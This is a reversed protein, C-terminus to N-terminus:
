GGFFNVAVVALPITIVCLVTSLAVIAGAEEVGVNYVSAMIPTTLGAPTATIIVSIMLLPGRLGAAYCGAFTLAPIIILRTLVTVYVRWSGFLQKMDAQAISMGIVAMSLPTTINGVLSISEELPNPLPVAFLFMLFGAITCIISPNLFVKWSFAPAKGGEKAILWAGFSFAIINSPINFISGHFLFLPGLVAEIVPFGVLGSNSLVVSYRHVGREPGKIRLIYPYVWGILLSFAYIATAILLSAGAEGLLERSFSRRFSNLILCPLAINLVFSSFSVGAEKTVIKLKISFFGAAMLLFLVLVQNLIMLDM